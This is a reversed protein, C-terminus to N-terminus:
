GLHMENTCFLLRKYTSRAFHAKISASCFTNKSKGRKMHIGEQFTHLWIVGSLQDNDESDKKVILYLWTDKNGVAWERCISLLFYNASNIQNPRYVAQVFHIWSFLQKHPEILRCLSAWYHFPCERNAPAKEKKTSTIWIANWWAAHHARTWQEGENCFKATDAWILIAMLCVCKM